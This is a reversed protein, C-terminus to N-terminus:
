MFMIYAIDAGEFRQWVGSNVVSPRHMLKLEFQVWTCLLTIVKYICCYLVAVLIVM